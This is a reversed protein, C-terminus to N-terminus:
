YLRKSRLVIAAHGVRLLYDTNNLAPKKLAMTVHSSRNTRLFRACTGLRFQALTLLLENSIWYKLCGIYM